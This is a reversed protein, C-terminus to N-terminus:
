VIGRNLREKLKSYFVGVAVSQGHPERINLRRLLGKKIIVGKKGWKYTYYKVKSIQNYPIVYSKYRLVIEVEEEKLKAVGNFTTVKTSIITGIAIFFILTIIEVLGHINIAATGTLLKTITLTFVAWILCSVLTILWDMRRNVYKFKCTEERMQGEKKGLLM